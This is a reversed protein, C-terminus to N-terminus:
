INTFRIKKLMFIFMFLLKWINETGVHVIKYWREGIGVCDVQVGPKASMFTISIIKRIM